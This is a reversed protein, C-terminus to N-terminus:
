PSMHVASTRDQASIQKQHKLQVGFKSLFRNQAPLVALWYWFQTYIHSELPAPIFDLRVACACTSAEYALLAYLQCHALVSYEEIASM